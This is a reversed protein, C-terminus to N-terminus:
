SQKFRNARRASRAEAAAKIPDKEEEKGSANPAAARPAVGQSGTAAAIRNVTKSTAANATKIGAVEKALATVAGVLQTLVEDNEASASAPDEDTAAPTIVTIAGGVTTITNGDSLVYDADAVANGDADTVSDGVEYTDRDGTDITLSDGGDTTVALATPADNDDDAATSAQATAPKNTASAMALKLADLGANFKSMLQHAWSPMQEPNSAPPTAGVPPLTALATIPQVIQTAFGFSLMEAATMMTEAGMKETIITADVGAREVYLDIIDQQCRAMEDAYAQIQEATGICGGSPLHILCETHEHIMRKSGALFIATAISSCQGVAVTTVEVGGLARLSDYIGMGVDVRGGPSNIIVRVSDFPKQWDLQMTVDELMTYPFANGAESSNAVIPGSIYVKAEAM